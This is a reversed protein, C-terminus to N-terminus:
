PLACVPVKLLPTKNEYSQVRYSQVFYTAVISVPFPSISYYVYLNKVVKKWKGQSPYLYGISVILYSSVIYLVKNGVLSGSAWLKKRVESLVM